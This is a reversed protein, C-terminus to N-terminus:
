GAAKVDIAKKPDNRTNWKMAGSDSRVMGNSDVMQVRLLIEAARSNEDGPRRQAGSGEPSVAGFGKRSASGFLRNGEPHFILYDRDSTAFMASKDPANLERDMIRSAWGVNLSDALQHQSLSMRNIDAKTARKASETMEPHASLHAQENSIAKGIEAYLGQGAALRDGKVFVSSQLLDYKYAAADLSAGAKPDMLYQGIGARAQLASTEAGALQIRRADEIAQREGPSKATASAAAAAVNIQGPRTVSYFNFDKSLFPAAAASGGNAAAEQAHISWAAVNATDTGSMPLIGSAVRENAAQLDLGTAHAKKADLIPQGAKGSASLIEYEAWANGAARQTASATSRSIAAIGLSSQGISAIAGETHLIGAGALSHAAPMGAELTIEQRELQFVVVKAAAQEREKQRYWEPTQGPTKLAATTQTLVDRAGSLTDAFMSGYDAGAKATALSISLGSQAVSLGTSAKDIATAAALQGIGQTTKSAEVGLSAIQEKLKTIQELATDGAASYPGLLAKDASQAGLISTRQARMAEITDGTSGGSAIIGQVRQGAINMATEAKTASVQLADVNGVKQMIGAPTEKVLASAKFTPDGHIPQGNSDMVGHRVAGPIISGSADQYGAVASEGGVIGLYAAREASYPEKLWGASRVDLSKTLAEAEADAVTHSPDADGRAVRIRRIVDAALGVGGEGYRKSLMEGMSGVASITKSSLGELNPMPSGSARIAETAATKEEQFKGYHEILGGATEGVISGAAAGLMTGIVPVISGIAAGALAGSVAGGAPAFDYWQTDRGQQANNILIDGTQGVGRIVQHMAMMMGIGSRLGGRGGGAGPLGAVAAADMIGGGGGGGSQPMEAGPIPGNGGRGGGGGGFGHDFVYRQMDEIGASATAFPIQAAYRNFGPSAVQSQLDSISSALPNGYAAPVRGGSGQIATVMTQYRRQLDDIQREAEAPDLAIPIVTREATPM